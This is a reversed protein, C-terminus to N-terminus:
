RAMRRIRDLERSVEAEVLAPLNADLWEKLMPKMMERVLEELSKVGGSGTVVVDKSLAGFAAAAATAVEPSLLTEEVETGTGSQAPEPTKASEAPTEAAPEPKASFVPGSPGSSRESENAAMSPATDLGNLKREFAPERKEPKDESVMQAPSLELVEADEQRETREKPEPAPQSSGSTENRPAAGATGEAEENDESIIRRISALIEEMTPEGQSNDHDTMSVM